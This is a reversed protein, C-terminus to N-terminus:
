LGNALSGLVAVAYVSPVVVHVLRPELSHLIRYARVFGLASVFPCSLPLLSLLIARLSPHELLLLAAFLAHRKDAGIDAYLRQWPTIRPLHTVRAQLSSRVLLSKDQELPLSSPHCIHSPLSAVLGLVLSPGPALTLRSLSARTSRVRRSGLTWRSLRPYKLRVHRWLWPCDVPRSRRVQVSLPLALRQMTPWLSCISSTLPVQQHV